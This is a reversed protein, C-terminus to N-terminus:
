KELDQKMKNFTEIDIEGRAYRKKLIDLATEVSRSDTDTKKFLVFRILAVIGALAVGWFLFMFFMMPWGMGHGWGMMGPWMGYQDDHALVLAPFVYQMATLVIIKIKMVLVKNGQTIEPSLSKPRQWRIMVMESKASLNVLVLEEFPLKM